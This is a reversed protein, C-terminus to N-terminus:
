NLKTCVKSEYCFMSQFFEGIFMLIEFMYLNLVMSELRCFLAVLAQFLVFNTSFKFCSFLDWFVEFTKSFFFSFSNRNEFGSVSKLVSKAKWNVLKQVYLTFKYLLYILKRTFFTNRKM